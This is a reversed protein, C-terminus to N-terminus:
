VNKFSQIGINGQPVTTATSEMGSPAKSPASPAFPATGFLCIIQVPLVSKLSLITTAKSHVSKVSLRLSIGTPPCIVNKAIKEVIMLTNPPVSVSKKSM